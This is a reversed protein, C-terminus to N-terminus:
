NFTVMKYLDMANGHLDKNNLGNCYLSERIKLKPQRHTYYKIEDVSEFNIDM